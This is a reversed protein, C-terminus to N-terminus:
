KWGKTITDTQQHGSQIQLPWSGKAGLSLSNGSHVGAGIWVSASQKQQFVLFILMKCSSQIGPIENNKNQSFEIFTEHSSVRVIGGWGQCQITRADIKNQDSEM